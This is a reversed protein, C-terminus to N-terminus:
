KKRGNMLDFAFDTIRLGAEEIIATVEAARAERSLAWLKALYPRRATTLKAQVESTIELATLKSERSRAIRELEAQPVPPEAPKAKPKGKRAKPPAHQRVLEAAQKRELKPTITGDKILSTIVPPPLKALEALTGWTPPFAVRHTTNALAQNRAIAMFRQATRASFPLKLELMALFEGHELEEKAELLMEGCELISSVGNAYALAILRVYEQWTRKNPKMSVVNSM